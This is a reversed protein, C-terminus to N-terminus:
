DYIDVEVRMNKLVEFFEPFSKEVAEIGNITVRDNCASALVSLAMVIRHDNHGELTVNGKLIDSGTIWVDNETCTVKCGLKELESKMAEIRDSEKIRLRRVDTFHSEGEIKSALAFLAPGLDPCNKLSVELPRLSNGKFLYGDSIESVECGCSRIIDVIAHDGQLSDHDMGHVMVESNNIAALLAFFAAQSDDGNVTMDLPRYKQNGRVSIDCGNKEIEIGANRLVSVTMDVYSESEFPELVKITSDENMLPLVFLLGTIFQSSIDGRIEYNGGNLKGKVKLVDDELKFEPFLQEYVTQPRQMLKGKGSFQCLKDSMTFLPIMFRLTSGSENCNIISSDYHDFDKIGQVTVENGNVEIVAGLIRLCNITAETDKNIDLDHIISKGDALSAAILARHSISKSAPIRVESKDSLLKGIVAKM